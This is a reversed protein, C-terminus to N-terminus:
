STRTQLTVNWVPNIKEKSLLLFDTVLKRRALESQRKETSKTRQVNRRRWKM